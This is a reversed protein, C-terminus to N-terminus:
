LSPVAIESAVHFSLAKKEQFGLVILSAWPGQHITVLWRDRGRGGACIEAGMGGSCQRSGLRM